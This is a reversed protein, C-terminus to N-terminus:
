NFIIEKFFEWCYFLTFSFFLFFFVKHISFQITHNPAPLMITTTHRLPTKVDDNRICFAIRCLGDKNNNQEEPATEEEKKKKYWVPNVPNRKKQPEKWSSNGCWIKKQLTRLCMSNKKIHINDQQISTNDCLIYVM